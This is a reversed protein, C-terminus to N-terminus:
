TPNELFQPASVNQVMDAPSYIQQEVLGQVDFLFVQWIGSQIGCDFMILQADSIHRCAVRFHCRASPSPLIAKPLERQGLVAPLTCQTIDTIRLKQHSTMDVAPAVVWLSLPSEGVHNAEASHM